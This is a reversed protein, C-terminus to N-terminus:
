LREGVLLERPDVVIPRRTPRCSAGPREGSLQTSPAQTVIGHLDKADGTKIKCGVAIERKEGVRLVTCRCGVTGGTHEDNAFDVSVNRRTSADNVGRRM